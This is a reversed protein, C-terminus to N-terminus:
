NEARERIADKEREAQEELKATRHTMEQVIVERESADAVQELKPRFALDVEAIKAKYKVDVEALEAKQADSLKKPEDGGFRELALEYASKM